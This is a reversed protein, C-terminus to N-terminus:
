VEILQLAEDEQIYTINTDIAAKIAIDVRNKTKDAEIDESKQQRKVYYTVFILTISLLCFIFFTTDTAAM